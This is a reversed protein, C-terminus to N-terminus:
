AAQTSPRMGFAGVMKVATEYSPNGKPSLARHLGARTIGTEKAPKMM